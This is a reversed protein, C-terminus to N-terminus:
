YGLLVHQLAILSILCLPHRQKANPLDLAFTLFCHLKFLLFSSESLIPVCRVNRINDPGKHSIEELDVMAIAYGAQFPDFLPM